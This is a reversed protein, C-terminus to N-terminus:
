QFKFNGTVAIDSLFLFGETGIIADMSLCINLRLWNQGQRVLVKEKAESQSNQLIKRAPGDLSQRNRREADEWKPGIFQPASNFTNINISSAEVLIGKASPFLM